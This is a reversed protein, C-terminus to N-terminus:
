ILQNLFVVAKKYLDINTENVVRDFDHQNSNLFEIQCNSVNQYIHESETYPVDPDNKCHVIFMPPFNKLQQPSINYDSQTSTQIGLYDLWKAEGRAHIYIPYRDQMSGSTLPQQQILQNLIEPTIKSSLTQYQSNPRLFSPVHVRCYGYFDVIGDVQRHTSVIMALFAGASRGFTFLPLSPYRQKIADYQLLVDSIIINIKSEPALRYSALVLHFDQSLVDIYPQALDYADGFILGGGHFYIIIGKPNNNKAEIVTFPLTFGDETIMESHYQSLRIM